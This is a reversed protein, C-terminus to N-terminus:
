LVTVSECLSTVMEHSQTEREFVEAHESPHIKQM